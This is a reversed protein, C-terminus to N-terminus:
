GLSQIYTQLVSARIMRAGRVKVSSLERAEIMRRVTKVSKRLAQAVEQLKLLMDGDPLIGPTM